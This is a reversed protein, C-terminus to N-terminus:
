REEKWRWVSRQDIGSLLEHINKKVVPHIFDSAIEDLPVLVFARNVIHPHPITLLETKLILEDYFLIDIDILRPGYKVTKVRGLDKEITKLEKLIEAPPLYTEFLIVQNLFNPQNKLGWPETEYIASESLIHGFGAIRGRAAALNASRDGLNSGLGLFVKHLSPKM